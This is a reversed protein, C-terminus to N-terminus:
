NHSRGAYEANCKGVEPKGLGQVVFQHRRKALCAAFETEAAPDSLFIEGDSM